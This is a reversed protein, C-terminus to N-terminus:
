IHIVILLCNGLHCFSFFENIKWILVHHKKTLRRSWVEGDYHKLREAQGTGSRPHEQLEKLLATLKKVVNPDSQKLRQIDSLANNSFSLTYM